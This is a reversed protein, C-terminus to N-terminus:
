FVVVYFRTFVVVFLETLSCMCGFCRSVQECLNCNGVVVWHFRLVRLLRIINVVQYLLFLSPLGFRSAVM